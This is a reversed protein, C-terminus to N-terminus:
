TIGHGAYRMHTRISIHDIIPGPTCHRSWLWMGQVLTKIQVPIVLLIGAFERQNIDLDQSGHAGRTTPPVGDGRAEQSVEIDDGDVLEIVLRHRPYKTGDHCEVELNTPQNSAQVTICTFETDTCLSFKWGSYWPQPVM